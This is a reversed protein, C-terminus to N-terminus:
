LSRRQREKWQRQWRSRHCACGMDFWTDGVAKWTSEKGRYSDTLFVEHAQSRRRQVRELPRSVNQVTENKRTSYGQSSARYYQKIFVDFHEFPPAGTRTLSWSRESGEVAHNLSHFALTPLRSSCHPAFARELVNNAASIESLLSAVEGVKWAARIHDFFFKGVMETYFVNM